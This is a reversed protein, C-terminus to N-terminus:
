SELKSQLGTNRKKTETNQIMYEVTNKTGLVILLKRARTIGTYLLNRTLLMPAASPLCMIVVDFESGQSKHITISYSHEIQELENYEYWATKEDDFKIEIQKTVDDIKKITGLEGNFIGTGNEKHNKEWYIDYNNKIQMVRDGELFIRDGHKKQPIDKLVSDPAEALNQRLMNNNINKRNLSPNLAKQLEKNLEKTGLKGKKTPTLVQIDKFFDYDGFKKLRGSCLSIVDELMKNASTENIFFFDQLKDKTEEKPIGIFTEGSNVKHANTIIQSKAAQRFIENLEITEIVGSNIIDKLVNGPGVSPLQNIDGVLVLKTGLYLGKLVLNMLFEDVMSMEDIIIVDADIPEIQYDVRDMGLSDDTKTLALLRHITTAEKGTSETMRKAARGTPACLVVKKGENKYLEIIFKIITTKGTGPGGTIVCVNNNNVLKIAEKQKASLVIDIKKEEDKFKKDFEKIKKINKALNLTQLKKAINKECIYLSNLYVWEIDENKEIEIIQRAKLNILSNEVYQSDVDLLNQVFTILNQKEVCTNGNNTALALSYKIACEIRQESNNALGLDLAMKDIKKFDVGYTIDILLYPNAEIQAVADKGFAEYVKKSNSASIGFKELFGVIEWLDWKEAFEQCITAAKSENIGKINALKEPEFRLVHLTDEGFKKIIKKATAPGVGSIIGGALYRELAELTQPMIKEFTEVKFQRGYDPHTVFKGMLKLSDGNNIFPLYGTIVTNEDETKFEAVMYGNIENEYIIDTIQGKIEM